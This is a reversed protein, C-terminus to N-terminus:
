KKNLYIFNYTTNLNEKNIFYIIAFYIINKLFLLYFLHDFIFLFTLLSLLKSISYYVLLLRDVALQRSLAMYVNNLWLRKM